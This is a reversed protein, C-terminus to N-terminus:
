ADGARHHAELPVAQAGPPALVQRPPPPPAPLRLRTSRSRSRVIRLPAEPELSLWSGARGARNAPIDPQPHLCAILREVDRTSNHRAAEILPEGNEDTLHPALIGVSSLTLAAM